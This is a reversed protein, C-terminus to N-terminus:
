RPVSVAPAANGSPAGHRKHREQEIFKCMTWNVGILMPSVVNLTRPFFKRMSTMVYLAINPPTM